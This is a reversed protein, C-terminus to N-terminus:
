MVSLRISKGSSRAAGPPGATEAASGAATGLSDAAIGRSGAAVGARGAGPALGLCAPGLARDEPFDAPRCAWAARLTVTVSAVRTRTPTM